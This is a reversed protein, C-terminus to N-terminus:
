EPGQLHLKFIHGRIDQFVSFYQKLIMYHKKLGNHFIIKQLGSTRKEVKATSLLSTM